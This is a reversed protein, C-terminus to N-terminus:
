RQSEDALIRKVLAEVEARTRARESAEEMAPGLIREETRQCLAWAEAPTWGARELSMQHGLLQAQVELVLAMYQELAHSTKPDIPM